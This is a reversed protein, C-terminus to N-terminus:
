MKLLIVATLTWEQPKMVINKAGLQFSLILKRLSENVHQHSIGLLKLIDPLRFYYFLPVLQQITDNTLGRGAQELYSMGM